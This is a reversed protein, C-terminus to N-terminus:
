AAGGRQFSLHLMGLYMTLAAQEAATPSWGRREMDARHGEAADLMPGFTDFLEMLGNALDHRTKDNEASM